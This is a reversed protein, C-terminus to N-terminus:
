LVGCAEVSVQEVILLPLGVSPWLEDVILIPVRLRTM